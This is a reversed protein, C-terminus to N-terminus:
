DCEIGGKHRTVMQVRCMLQAQIGADNQFLYLTNLIGTHKLKLFKTTVYTM